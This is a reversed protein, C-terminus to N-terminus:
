NQVAYQPTPLQIHNLQAQGPPRLPSPVYSQTSSLPSPVYNRSFPVQQQYAHQLAAGEREGRYPQFHQQATRM